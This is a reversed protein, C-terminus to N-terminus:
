RCQHVRSVDVVVATINDTGGAALAQNVMERVKEAPSTDARLIAAMPEFHVLRYLGDSSLLLTDGAAIRFGHADPVCDGCGLYQDLIEKSYHNEAQKPTIEKEAVLFRALTHDKTVQQIKHNRLLYLRSDGVHVWHAWDGRLWVLTLTTGMGGMDENARRARAVRRDLRTALEALREGPASPDMTEIGQLAEHVITAAIDGAPEGGLGDSVSVLASGDSLRRLCFRDQNTKRVRGQHTAAAAVAGPLIVQDKEVM